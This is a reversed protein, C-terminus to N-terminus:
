QVTFRVVDLPERSVDDFVKLTWAGRMSPTFTKRSKTRFGESPTVSLQVVAVVDEVAGFEKSLALTNVIQGADRLLMRDMESWVTPPVRSASHGERYWVHYIEESRSSSVSTVAYLEPYESVDIVFGSGDLSLEPVCDRGDSTLQSANCFKVSKLEVAEATGAVATFAFAALGSLVVRSSRSM